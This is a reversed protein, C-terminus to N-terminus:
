TQDNKNRRRAGARPEGQARSPRKPNRLDRTRPAYKHRAPVLKVWPLILASGETHQFSPVSSANSTGVIRGTATDSSNGFAGHVTVEVTAVDPNHNANSFPQVIQLSQGNILPPETQTRTRIPETLDHDTVNVPVEEGSAKFFRYDVSLIDALSSDFIFYTVTLTDGSRFLTVLAPLPPDGPSILHVEKNVHATLRVGKDSGVCGNHELTITSNVTDPLVLYAPLNRNNGKFFRPIAADFMATFIQTQGPQITITQGGSGVIIREISFHRSDDSRALQSPKNQPFDDRRISAFRVALPAFGTNQITFTGSQRQEPAVKQFDLNTTKAKAFGVGPFSLESTNGESDTVTATYGCTPSVAVGSISFSGNTDTTGRALPMVGTIVRNDTTGQLATAGNASPAACNAVSKTVAFIEVMAGILSSPCVEEACNPDCVSGTVTVSNESQTVNTIRPFNLLTNPGQDADCLDNDTRGDGGLDIPTACNLSDLITNGLITNGINRVAANSGGVGNSNNTPPDLVLVGAVENNVLTNREIRNHGVIEFQSIPDIAIGSRTFDIISLGRVIDHNSRIQIGDALKGAGDITVSPACKTQDTAGNQDDCGDIGDITIDPATLPPLLTRPQITKGKVNDAFTIVASGCNCNAQEIAQRLSLGPNASPPTNPDTDSDTKVVLSIAPVTDRLVRRTIEALEEAQRNCDEVVDMPCSESRACAGPLNCVTRNIVIAAGPLDDPPGPFVISEVKKKNRELETMGDKDRETLVPSLGMLIVDLESQVLDGNAVAQVFNSATMGMDADTPEGDTAMLFVRRAGFRNRLQDNAALIANTFSTNGSPCPGAMSDLDGCKLARVNAAINDADQDSKIETLPVRVVGQENFTLVTVALSGDRPIVSTNGLARIVGEIAVNYTQGRGQSATRDTPFNISNMLSGSDDIIFALNIKAAPCTSCVQQASRTPGAVIMGTIFLAVLSAPLVGTAVGLTTTASHNTLFRALRRRLNSATKMMSPAM